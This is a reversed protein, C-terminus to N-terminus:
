VCVGKQMYHNSHESIIMFIFNLVPSFFTKYMIDITPSAQKM